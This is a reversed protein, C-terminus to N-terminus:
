EGASVVGYGASSGAVPVPPSLPPATQRRQLEAAQTATKLLATAVADWTFYEACARQFRTFRARLEDAPVAAIAASQGAIEAVGSIRRIFFAHDPIHVFDFGVDAFSLVIQNSAIYALTKLKHGAEFRDTILGIRMAAGTEAASPMPMPRLHQVADAPMGDARVPLRDGLSAYDQAFKLIDRRKPLWDYTGSVVLEARFGADKALSVFPPMGPPLLVVDPAGALTQVYAQDRRSLAGIAAFQGARYARREWARAQAAALGALRNGPFLAPLSRSTVNHLIMVAPPSLARALHDFPEWSCITVDYQRSRALIAARNATSSFRTRYHPLGRLMNTIQQSRGVPAPHFLDIQHGQARCAAITRRDFVEDGAEGSTPQKGIWLIHM